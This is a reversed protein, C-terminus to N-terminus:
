DTRHGRPPAFRRSTCGQGTDMESKRGPVIPNAYEPYGQEVWFPTYSWIRSLVDREDHACKQMEDRLVDIAARDKARIQWEPNLLRVHTKIAYEFRVGSIHV